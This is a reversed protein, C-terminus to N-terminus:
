KMTLNLQPDYISCGFARALEFFHDRHEDSLQESELRLFQWAWTARFREEGSVWMVQGATEKSGSFSRNLHDLMERIPVDALGAVDEGADLQRQVEAAPLAPDREERWLYLLHPM